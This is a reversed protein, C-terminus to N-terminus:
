AANITSLMCQMFFPQTKFSEMYDNTLIYTEFGSIDPNNLSQIKLVDGNSDTYQILDVEESKEAFYALLDDVSITEALNYNDKLKVEIEIKLVDSSTEKANTSLLLSGNIITCDNKEIILKSLASLNANNIQMLNIRNFM